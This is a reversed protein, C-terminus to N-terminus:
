DLLVFGAWYQAYPYKIRVKSQATKFANHKTEGSLLTSYFVRMMYSTANDDVKWLSMILSKVGALKFARQIGMVGEAGKGIDGLGTQCASLVAINVNRLDITSIEESTLIGDHEKEINQIGLWATQGGTMIFGSRKMPSVYYHSRYYKKKHVEKEPIYFGHTALHVINIDLGSLNRFSEETGDLGIKKIVSIGQSTLYNSISDVEEVTAPLFKWGARTTSNEFHQFADLSDVEQGNPKADYLLGGYLVVNTVNDEEHNLCLERTSSLRFVNYKESFLIGQNDSLIEVPAKNLLGDLSFYINDGKKLHNEIKGWVLEYLQRSLYDWQKNDMGLGNNYSSSIHEIIKDIRELSDLVVFQPTNYDNRIILAGYCIPAHDLPEM